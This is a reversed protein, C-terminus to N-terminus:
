CPGTGLLILAVDGFDVEGTGDSLVLWDMDGERAPSSGLVRM